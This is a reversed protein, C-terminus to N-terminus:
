RSAEKAPAPVKPADSSGVTVIESSKPLRMGLEGARSLVEPSSRLAHYQGDLMDHESQLDRLLKSANGLEGGTQVLRYNQWVRYVGILTLLCVLLLGIFFAKLLRGEM